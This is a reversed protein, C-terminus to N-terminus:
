ASFFSGFGRRGFLALLGMGILALPAPAPVALPPVPPDPTDDGPRYYVSIHSIDRPGQGPFVFPPEVFPSNFTGGSLLLEDVDILYSVLNTGQGSKFVFMLSELSNLFTDAGAAASFTGGQEWDVAPEFDILQVVTENEKWKQSFLWDNFGFFENTNVFGPQPVDNDDGNLPLLVGCGENPDVKTKLPDYATNSDCSVFAASVNASSAIGILLASGALLGPLSRNPSYIM